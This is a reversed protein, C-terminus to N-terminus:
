RRPDTARVEGLTTLCASLVVATCTLFHLFHKRLPWRM